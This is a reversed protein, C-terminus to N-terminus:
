EPFGPQGSSGQIQTRDLDTGLMRNVRATRLRIVLPAAPRVYEDVIGATATGAGMEEILQVARNLATVTGEVNIGKEFRLSAETRMGLAQATRRISLSDFCAGSELLVSGTEETVESALGGMVGALAAAERTDSIVLMEENLERKVGDLSDM